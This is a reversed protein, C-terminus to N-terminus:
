KSDENQIAQRTEHTVAIPVVRENDKLPQSPRKPAEITLVGNPNLSSIVKQPECEEPLAYRRTFERSIWGHKDMKEEHKGHIVINNDVTKVTIEEPKFHSCDVKVEFKNGDNRIESTGSRASLQKQPISLALSPVLLDNLDDFYTTQPWDWVDWYNRRRPLFQLLDM